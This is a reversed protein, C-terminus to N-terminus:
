HDFRSNLNQQNFVVGCVNPQDFVCKLFDVCIPMEVYGGITLIREIKQKPTSGM